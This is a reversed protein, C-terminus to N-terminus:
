AGATKLPSSLKKATQLNSSYDFAEDGLKVYIDFVEATFAKQGETEPSCAVLGLGATLAVATLGIKLLKNKM